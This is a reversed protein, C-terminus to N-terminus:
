HLEEPFGLKARGKSSEKGLKGTLTKSPITNSLHKGEQRLFGLKASFRL